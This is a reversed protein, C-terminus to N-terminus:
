RMKRAQVAWRMDSFHKSFLEWLVYTKMVKLYNFKLKYWRRCLDATTTPGPRTKSHRILSFDIPYFQLCVWVDTDYKKGHTSPFFAKRVHNREDLIIIKDVFKEKRCRRWCRVCFAAKGPIKKPQYRWDILFFHM